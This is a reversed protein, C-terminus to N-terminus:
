RGQNIDLEEKTGAIIQAIDEDIHDGAVCHAGGNDHVAKRNRASYDGLLVAIELRPFMMRLQHLTSFKGPPDLDLLVVDPHKASITAMARALSDSQGIVTCQEYGLEGFRALADRFRGEKEVILIRRKETNRDSTVSTVEKLNIGIDIYLRELLRVHHM